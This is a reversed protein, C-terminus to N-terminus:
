KSLGGYKKTIVYQQWISLINNSTWYLVLGSPFFAFFVTFILPLMMMVKAQIPDIPAPNLKQQIFMSAGMLLPLIYFPDKISLDDLWLFSAQRLEVSELLVWYLAIFVPMQVLIPLCGGMPNVKEEKYIKMMAQNLKQKDDGYRKKLTALRPQLKRMRAMSKYSTASLKFFVLKILFTILIIAIGWNFTFSHIFKLLWFIPKAIITLWGYDVTLELGEQAQQMEDQLKPGLYMSYNFDSNGNPPIELLKMRTGVVYKGAQKYSYLLSKSSPIVAGTFYHQIYGIWSDETIISINSESLDDFSIKKYSNEKTYLAAGTYSYNTIGMEESELLGERKLQGFVNGQWIKDTQNNIQYNVYVVYSGKTFIYSKVITLGPPADAWNLNVELKDGSLRYESNESNFKANENPFFSKDGGKVGVIGNEVIYFPQTKTQLLSFLKDKNEIDVPYNKLELKVIKGGTKAIKLKYVDTEVDITEQYDNIDQSSITPITSKEQPVNVINESPVTPNATTGTGQVKEVVPKPPQHEFQWTQWIMFLVLSLAIILMSRQFDM